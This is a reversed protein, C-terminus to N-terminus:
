SRLANNKLLTLWASQNALLWCDCVWAASVWGSRALLARQPHDNPQRSRSRNVYTHFEQLMSSRFSSFVHPHRAAIGKSDVDPEEKKFSLSPLISEEGATLVPLESFNATLRKAKGFSLTKTRSQQM